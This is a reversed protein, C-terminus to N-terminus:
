SVPPLWVGTMKALRVEAERIMEDYVLAERRQDLALSSKEAMRELLDRAVESTEAEMVQAGFRNAMQVYNNSARIHAERTQCLSQIESRIMDVAQNTQAAESLLYENQILM